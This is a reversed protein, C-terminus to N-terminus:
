LWNSLNRCYQLTDELLAPEELIRGSPAEGVFSPCGSRIDWNYDCFHHFTSEAIANGEQGAADFAVALNFARGTTKSCGRAITRATVDGAPPSVAGEHPHAPFYELPSGDARRLVPHLPGVVEIQQVDGNDGSHFNPWDIAPAGTDDRVRNAADPDLNYDHFHHAAGVGGLTCISSGLNMHDRTVMLGGGARRFRGIASCEDPTLGDGNDVAFLWIQDFGATDVRSLVSDEAGDRDRAVVDHEKALLESLFHFRGVHWDDERFPITTQILIRAM